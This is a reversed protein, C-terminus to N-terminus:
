HFLPLYPHNNIPYLEWPFLTTLHMISHHALPCIVSVKNLIIFYAEVVERKPGLQDFDVLSPVVINSYLKFSFNPKYFVHKEFINLYNIMM